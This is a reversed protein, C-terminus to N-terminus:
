KMEEFIKEEEDTLYTYQLATVFNKDAKYLYQNFNILTPIDIEEVQEKAIAKSLDQIFNNHMEKIEAFAESLEKFNEKSYSRDIINAIHQYFIIQHKKIKTYLDAIKSDKISKLNQLDNVINKIAKSSKVTAYISQEIYELMKREKHHLHQLKLPLLSELMIDSTKKINNYLEDHKKSDRTISKQM